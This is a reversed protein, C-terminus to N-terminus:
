EIRLKGTEDFYVHNEKDLFAPYKTNCLGEAKLWKFIEDKSYFPERSHEEKLLKVLLSNWDDDAYDDCVFISHATESSSSKMKIINVGGIISAISELLFPTWPINLTPYWSFDEISDVAIYGNHGNVAEAILDSINEYMDESLGTSEIRMLTFSDVRILEPQMVDLLNSLSIYHVSNQRCIDVFDDIEIATMDDLHKLLVAKNTIEGMNERCIYPRSFYFDESFMYQLVGFLKGHKQIDNRIMFDTFAFMFEDQLYRSSVPIEHINKDLYKKINYRDDETIHLRSAHMYYGNDLCIIEPCRPLVLALNHDKWGPFEELIESKHVTGAAKVFTDLEVELSANGNKSIYDRHSTYPCGYLKMVGQLIYRNTIATGKFLDKLSSFLESYAIASKPSKEIYAFVKNIIKRDVNIYDRHVYKGRDILVGISMIKTDITRRTGREREGFFENLYKIFLESDTEDATKYGNQFRTKLVFEYMQVAMLHGKHSYNGTERYRKKVARILFEKYLGSENAYAELKENLVATEILEPLGNVFEEAIKDANDPAKAM